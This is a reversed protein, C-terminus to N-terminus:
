IEGLYEGDKLGALSHMTVHGHSVHEPRGVWGTTAVDKVTVGNLESSTTHPYWDHACRFPGVRSEFTPGVLGVDVTITPCKARGEIAAVVL